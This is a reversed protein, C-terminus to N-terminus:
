YMTALHSSPFYHALIDPYRHGNAAMVAAGIQCLGVGHGWGAGTLTFGSPTSDVVFASSYLHSESLWRRIELEKGVVMTRKTGVVRLRYIRGSTGRALPELRLITGFDIGSKRRVLESLGATTYDVKWRYFHTTQRDYSNLISQLVAEDASDCWATPTQRIWRDANEEVTLDPVSAPDAGAADVVRQLYPYPTEAWCNEFLETVGGCAKSFRADCIHNGYALVVGRTAEIAQQVQPTSARRIGQYRQCHDDACVDFDTHTDREYWRVIEDPTSRERVAASEAEKDFIPKLLWSRSIIAHAKLLEAPATASMESSIVSYLYAEVGIDNIVQINGDKVELRLVGKFSQAEQQQWHFQKGIVVNNLTFCGSPDAFHQQGVPAFSLSSYSGGEFELRGGVLVVRYSGNFVASPIQEARYDADFAFLLSRCEMIGVAIVPEVALRPLQEMPAVASAPSDQRIDWCEPVFMKMSDVSEKRRKEIFGM